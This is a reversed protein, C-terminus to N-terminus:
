YVIPTGMVPAALPPPPDVPTTACTEASMPSLRTGDGAAVTYCKQQGQVVATDTYTCYLATTTCLTGVAVMQANIQTPSEGGPITGAYIFYGIGAAASPDTWQLVTSHPTAKVRIGTHKQQGLM